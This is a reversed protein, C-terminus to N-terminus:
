DTIIANGLREHLIQQITELPCQLRYLTTIVSDNGAKTSKLHRIILRNESEHTVVIQIQGSKALRHLM